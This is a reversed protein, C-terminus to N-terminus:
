YTLCMGLKWSGAEPVGGRLRCGHAVVHMVGMHLAGMHGRRAGMHLAGMHVGMHLAGMHGRHAGMHGRHAFCGHTM